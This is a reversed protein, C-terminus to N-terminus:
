WSAPKRFWGVADKLLDPFQSAELAPRRIQKFFTTSARLSHSPHKQPNLIGVVKGLRGRVLRVPELLDSDNTVLVAVNFRDEYADALLETALNVDSGKEETKIVLAYRPGGPVPAALPMRVPHSLYHGLHIDVTPLTALARFYLQQRTPQGPDGARASVRASFYKIRVIENRSSLLRRALSELDLWRYPTGKLCGYYLNFADIYLITRV